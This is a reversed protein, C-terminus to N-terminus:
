EYFASCAMVYGEGPAPFAPAMPVHCTALEASTMYRQSALNQMHEQMTELVPWVLEAM